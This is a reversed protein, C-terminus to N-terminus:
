LWSKANGHQQANEVNSCNRTPEVSMSWSCLKKNCSKSAKRLITSSASYWAKYAKHKPSINAIHDKFLLQHDIPVGLDKDTISEELQYRTGKLSSENHMARWACSESFSLSIWRWCWIRKKRCISTRNEGATQDTHCCWMTQRSWQGLGLPFRRSSANLKLWYCNLEPHIGLHSYRHKSFGTHVAGVRLFKGFINGKFFNNNIM